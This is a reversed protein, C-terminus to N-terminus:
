RETASLDSKQDTVMPEAALGVTALRATYAASIRAGYDQMHGKCCDASFCTATSGVAAAEATLQRVKRSMEWRELADGLNGGLLREGMNKLFQRRPSLVIEQASRREFGNPLLERAWRNALVMAGYVSAGYLPAMQALEHATFLSRDELVLHDTSTIYNPCLTVGYLRAWRVLLLVILRALWVRGPKVALLYDIDDAPRQPNEVALAGTLAVMRVFPVTALWRAHRQAQEMLLDSAKKRSRRTAFNDERQRIAVYDGQQVIQGRLWPDQLACEVEELTAVQGVLYRQIESATLPYGFLDAYLLTRLIATKLGRRSSSADM